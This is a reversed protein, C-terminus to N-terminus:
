KRRSVVRDGAHIPEYSQTVLATSSERQVSIITAGGVVSAAAGTELGGRTIAFHDGPLVGDQSGRDIFIIEKETINQEDEMSAVVCGRIDAASSHASKVEREAGPPVIEDGEVITRVSKSVRAKYLDGKGELIILEGSILVATGLKRHTLPHIIKRGPHLVTFRDGERVEKGVALRVYVIEGDTLNVSSDKTGVIYGWSPLPKSAIFGTLRIPDRTKATEPKPDSQAESLTLSWFFFVGLLVVLGAGASKSQVAM